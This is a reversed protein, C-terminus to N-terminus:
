SRTALVLYVRMYQLLVDVLAVVCNHRIDAAVRVGILDFAATRDPCHCGTSV